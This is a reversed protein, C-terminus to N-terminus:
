IKKATLRPSVGPLKSKARASTAVPEPDQTASSPVSLAQIEKRLHLALPQLSTPTHARERAAAELYKKVVRLYKIEYQAAEAQLQQQTGQGPGGGAGTGLAARGTQSAERDIAEKVVPLTFPLPWASPFVALKQLEADIVEWRRGPKRDACAMAEERTVPTGKAWTFLAALYSGWGDPLGWEPRPAEGLVGHLYDKIDEESSRSNPHGHQVVALTEYTQPFIKILIRVLQRMEDMPGRQVKRNPDKEEGAQQKRKRKGKGGAQAGKGRAAAAPPADRGPPQLSAGAPGGQAQPPLAQVGPSVGPSRSSTGVEGTAMISGALDLNALVQSTTQSQILPMFGGLIPNGAILNLAQQQLRNAMHASQQELLMKTQALSSAPNLGTLQGAPLLTGSNFFTTGHSSMGTSSSALNSQKLAAVTLDHLPNPPQQLRELGAAAGAAGPQAPPGPAAHARQPGGRDMMFKSEMYCSRSAATEPIVIKKM